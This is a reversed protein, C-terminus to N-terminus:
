FNNEEFADLRSDKGKNSIRRKEREAKQYTDPISPYEPKKGDLLEQITLIQLRPVKEGWVTELFGAQAAEIVMDRTADKMSLFVGYDAKDREIVGRLDRIDSPKVNGSKVQVLGVFYDKETKRNFIVGDIGHDAVKRPSPRAGILSLAWAQFQFRDQEALANAGAVDTPEGEVQPMIRFTDLLRNRILNIALHTIDIGVWDRNLKQAAHIATGCGCFPDLIVDGENSSVSVIRELLALPKQTPYGLRETSQGQLPSIDDWVDQLPVGPMEDLYRKYALRRDKSEPFHIHGESEWREMTSVPMRWGNEPPKYGKYEYNYGGPHPNALNDLRYKRGDPDTYKYFSTIYDESYPLYQANYTFNESKTYFLISDHIRGYRSPDNHASTRKWIIENRFNKPGFITDMIIKLYHSATPDCHLYISGTDKLVRHLEILRVDMMVLYALLDNRGIFDAIAQIAESVNSPVWDGRILEDLTKEPETGWKWTDSFARIQSESQNGTKERFLLNYDANSNFPPDLYILDVSQDPIKERLIRLNDGYYLKGM